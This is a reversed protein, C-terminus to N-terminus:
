NILKFTNAANDLCAIKEIDEGVRARNAKDAFVKKVDADQVALIFSPDLKFKFKAAFRIGRTLPVAETKLLLLPDIITRVLGDKIDQLGKNTFDEIKNETVNYFL